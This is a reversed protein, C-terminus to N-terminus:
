LRVVICCSPGCSGCLWLRAVICSPAGCSGWLWLRVVICSPPGDWLRVHAATITPQAKTESPSGAAPACGSSTTSVFSPSVVLPAIRAPTSTHIYYVFM